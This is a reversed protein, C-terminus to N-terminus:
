GSDRTQARRESVRRVLEKDRVENHMAFMARAARYEDRTMLGGAAREEDSMLHWPKDM